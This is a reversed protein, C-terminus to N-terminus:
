SRALQDRTERMGCSGSALSQARGLPYDGDGGGLLEGDEPAFPQALAISAALTGVSDVRTWPYADFGRADRAVLDQIPQTVQPLERRSAAGDSSIPETAPTASSSSPSSGDAYRTRRRAARATGRDGSRNDHV